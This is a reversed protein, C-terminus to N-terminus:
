RVQSMTDQLHDVLTENEMELFKRQEQTLAPDPDEFKKSNGHSESIASTAFSKISPNQYPKVHIKDLTMIHHEMRREEMSKLEKSIKMLKFELDWIVGKNSELCDPNVFDKELEM